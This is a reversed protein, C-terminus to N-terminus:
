TEHRKLQQNFGPHNDRRAERSLYPEQLAAIVGTGFYSLGIVLVDKERVEAETLVGQEWFERLAKIYYHHLRVRM